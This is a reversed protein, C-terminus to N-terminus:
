RTLWSPRMCRTSKASVEEGDSLTCWRWCDMWMGLMCLGCLGSWVPGSVDMWRHEGTTLMAGLEAAAGTGLIHHGSVAQRERQTLQAQSGAMDQGISVEPLMAPRPQGAAGAFQPQHPALRIITLLLLFTVVHRQPPLM